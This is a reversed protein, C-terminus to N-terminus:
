LQEAVVSKSIVVARTTTPTITKGTMSTPLEVIGAATAVKATPVLVNCATAAATAAGAAAGAAAAVVVVIILM